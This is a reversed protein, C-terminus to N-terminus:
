LTFENDRVDEPAAGPAVPIPPADPLPIPALPTPTPPPAPPAGPPAAAIPPVTRRRDTRSTMVAGAGPAPPPPPGGGGGNQVVHDRLMHLVASESAGTQRMFEGIQVRNAAAMHMVQNHMQRADVLNVQRADVPQNLVNVPNNHVNVPQHLLNVPQHIIVQPGGGMVVDGALALPATRAGIQNLAEVMRQQDAANRDQHQKAVEAQMRERERAKHQADKMEGIAMVVDARMQNRHVEDNAAQDVQMQQVANAMNGMALQQQNM